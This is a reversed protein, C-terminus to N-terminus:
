YSGYNAAARVAHYHALGQGDVGIGRAAMQYAVSASANAVPDYINNSTGGVHHRAFTEATVQWPGRSCNLPAGDAQLPGTANSDERNVADPVGSSEHLCQQYMIDRWHARVQPDRSIGNNDLAKDIVAVIQSKTMPGSLGTKRFDINSTSLPQHGGAPGFDGIPPATRGTLDANAVLKALADPDVNIMGPALQPVSPMMAAPAIAPAPAPAPAAPAALPSAPGQPQSLADLLAAPGGPGVARTRAAGARDADALDSVSGKGKGLTDDTKDISRKTKDNHDRLSSSISEDDIGNPDHDPLGQRHDRLAGQASTYTGLAEDESYRIDNPPM